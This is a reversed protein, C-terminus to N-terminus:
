RKGPIPQVIEQAPGTVWSAPTKQVAEILSPAPENAVVRDYVAGGLSATDVRLM